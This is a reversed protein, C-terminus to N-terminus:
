PNGALQSQHKQLVESCIDRISDVSENKLCNGLPNAFEISWAAQYMASAAGFRVNADSDSLSQVLLSRAAPLNMGRLAFVAKARLPIQASSKAQDSAETFLEVRGSNGIADMVVLQQPLQNSALAERWKRKLYQIEDEPEKVKEIASGLAFLAGNRLDIDPDQESIKKLFDITEESLTAQTTTLAGLISGKGSQPNQPHQYAELLIEQSDLSGDTALAGIISQYKESQAGRSIVDKEFLIKRLDSVRTPDLRLAKVLDGFVRLQESSSLQSIRQLETLLTPWHIKQYEPNQDIPLQSAVLQQSVRKQYKDAVDKAFSSSSMSLFDFRSLSRSALSYPANGFSSKEKIQIKVPVSERNLEILQVFEEIKLRQNGSLYEKHTKRITKKDSDKQREALQYRYIGVTDENSLYFFQALIDKLVNLGEHDEKTSTPDIFIEFSNKRQSYRVYANLTEEKKGKPEFSVIFNSWDENELNSQVSFIGDLHIEPIQQGFGDIQIRKAYKYSIKKDKPFRASEIKVVSSLSRSESSTEEAAFEEVDVKEKPLVQWAGISICIAAFLSLPFLFSKM